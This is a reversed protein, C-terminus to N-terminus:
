GRSRRHAEPDLRVHRNYLADGPLFLKSVLSKARLGPEWPCLSNTLLMCPSPSGVTSRSGVKQIRVEKDLVVQVATGKPVTLPITENTSASITAVPRHKLMSDSSSAPTSVADQAQAAGTCAYTLIAALIFRLSSM